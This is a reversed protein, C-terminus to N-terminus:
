STPCRRSPASPRGTPGCRTPWRTPLSVWRRPWSAPTSPASPWSRSGRSATWTATPASCTGPRLGTRSWGPWSPASAPRWPLWHAWRDPSGASHPASPPTPWTRTPWKPPWRPPWAPPRGAPPRSSHREGTAPLDGVRSHVRRTTALLDGYALTALHNAHTATGVFRALQAWRLQRNADDIPGVQAWASQMLAEQDKQVVRTGLGATVRHEPRLNLQGLWDRDRTAALSSVAAHYRAYIEPGVVPVDPPPDAGGPPRNAIQDPTNLLTRLAETEAQPWGSSEAAAAAAEKADASDARPLQPSVLPGHITQLGAPDGAPLPPLGGEPVAVDTVRRGVQWPAPQGRLKEALSEFDGAPGTGFRWSTYAPLLVTDDADRGDGARTWAPKLTGTVGTGLGTQVGADYAPVVCALYQTDPQLRRPCVLRSLNVAAYDRTLRDDVSGPSGMPGILQAHAWAYSQDIDIPQLESKRANVQPPRGGRGPALDYRGAALVVLVMWPPLRDGAPAAPTFLWPLEPRDFEIHALFSDEANNTGPAPYRRIVQREDLGAVDGPGRVQLPTPPQAVVPTHNDAQVAVSVSITARIDAAGSPAQVATGVGARVWPLYTYQGLVINEPTFPIAPVLHFANNVYGKEDALSHSM